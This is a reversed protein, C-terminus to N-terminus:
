IGVTSEPGYTSLVSEVTLSIMNVVPLGVLREIQKVYAHSTNCPFALFKAGANKLIRSSNVLMPLPTEGNRLLHATRDPIQPNNYMLYPIHEQDRTAPTMKVILNQLYVSAAPGMGGVIGCLSKIDTKM